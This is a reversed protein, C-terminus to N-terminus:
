ETGGEEEIEANPDVPAEAAPTSTVMNKIKDVVGGKLKIVSGITAVALAVVLILNFAVRGIGSGVADGIYSRKNNMILFILYAIPLMTFCIASAAIPFWIPLGTVVGLIGVAPLLAFLRFRWATYQLNFMECVTFGCVVMHTSIAGCTMGLLGLDFIIRGTGQGMVSELAVSAHLPKMGTRVFENNPDYVGSVTMALIVFSTVLV